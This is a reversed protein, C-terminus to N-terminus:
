KGDPVDLAKLRTALSNSRYWDHAEERYSYRLVDIGGSERKCMGWWVSDWLSLNGPFSRRKNNEEKFKTLTTGTM